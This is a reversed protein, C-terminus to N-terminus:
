IGLDPEGPPQMHEPAHERDLVMWDIAQIDTQTPTWPVISGDTTRMDIHNQYNVVAGAPYIGMLPKKNVAFESGPVQFIFQGVANWVTRSVCHGRFVMELAHPFSMMAYPEYALEFENFPSWSVYGYHDPHNLNTSGPYEVLYGNDNRQPNSWGMYNHFELRTMPRAKILKTGIYNQM